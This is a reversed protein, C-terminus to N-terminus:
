DLGYCVMVLFVMYLIYLYNLLYFSNFRMERSSLTLLWWSAYIWPWVVFSKLSDFGRRIFHNLIMCHTFPSNFPALALKLSSYVYNLLFCSVWIRHVRYDVVTRVISCRTIFRDFAQVASTLCIAQDDQKRAVSRFVILGQITYM